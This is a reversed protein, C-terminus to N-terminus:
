LSAIKERLKAFDPEGLGTAADWGALAPWGFLFFNDQADACGVTESGDAVDRFVSAFSDQYLIPNLFGLVPKGARLRLDNLLAVMAAFVPTSASTGKIPIGTPPVFYNDGILSVDPIARGSANYLNSQSNNATSLAGTLEGLYHTVQQQQWAPQAFYRSFGGGSYSSVGGYSATAGVATVWPCTAPFSPIFTHKGDPGLCQNDQELTGGAGGDGSADIISIGRAAAQAFLDCARRAYKEPVSQEDDSYSISIVQPPNDLALYAQMFELYPENDPQPDPKNGPQDLMVGFGGTTTFILDLPGTFATTYDLDLLPEPWLDSAQVYTETGNDFSVIEYYPIRKEPDTSYNSLFTTWDPFNPFHNTFATVAIRSGSENNPPHYDINYKTAIADPCLSNTCNLPGPPPRQRKELQSQHSKPVKPRFFHITPYIFDVHEVIDSPLSYSDTAIITRSRDVQDPSQMQLEGAPVHEYINFQTNLLAAASGVTTRFAVESTKRAQTLIQVDHDQLWSEVSRLAEDSQSTLEALERVDIHKGYRDSTPDSIETAASLLAERPTTLAVKLTIISDQDAPGLSHWGRPINDLREHEVLTIDNNAQSTPFAVASCLVACLGYIRLGRIAGMMFHSKM